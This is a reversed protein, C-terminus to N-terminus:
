HAECAALNENTQAAPPYCLQESCLNCQSINRRPDLSEYNRSKAQESKQDSPLSSAFLDQRCLYALIPHSPCVGQSRLGSSSRM